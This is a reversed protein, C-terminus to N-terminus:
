MRTSFERTRPPCHLAGDVQLSAAILLWLLPTSLDPASVSKAVLLGLLGASLAASSRSRSGRVVLLLVASGFAAVGVAGTTSLLTVLFSSSRNSGLGAGLGWTDLFVRIGIEDAATRSDFSQSGLKEDVIGVLPAALQGGVSVAAFTVVCLVLAAVDADRGGSAAFRRAASTALIVFVACGAAVATGSASAFLNCLAIAFLAAAGTRARRDQVSLARTGAFAAVALSFAALESPEAFVGRLREDQASSYDVSLTDFVWATGDRGLSRLVGRAASLITGTWAAVVLAQLGTRTLCLFRAALLGAVLYVVQSANGLSYQLSSPAHVQDDIGKAPTLVPIDPFVWPGIATIVISWAAFIALLLTATGAGSRQRTTGTWISLAAVLVFVPVAVPGIAIGASAPVGASLGLAAARIPHQRLAIGVVAIVLAVAGLLTM